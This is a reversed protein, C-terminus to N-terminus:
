NKENEKEKKNIKKYDMKKLCRYRCNKKCYELRYYNDNKCGVFINNIICDKVPLKSINM